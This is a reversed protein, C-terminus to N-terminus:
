SNTNWIDVHWRWDGHEQKWVVVYKAHVQQGGRLTLLACGIQHAFGESASLEVTTLEIRQIGMQEAAARWFQVINHRGRVMEAGPPLIAADETYTSLIAGEVDGRNFSESFGMDVAEIRRRIEDLSTQM